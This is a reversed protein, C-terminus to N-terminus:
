KAGTSKSLKKFLKALLVNFEQFVREKKLGYSAEKAKLLKGKLEFVRLELDWSEKIVKVTIEFAELPIAEKENKNLEGMVFRYDPSRAIRGIASKILRTEMLKDEINIKIPLLQMLKVDTKSSIVKEEIEPKGGGAFIDQFVLFLTMLFFYKM